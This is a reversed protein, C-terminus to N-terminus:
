ATCNDKYPITATGGSHFKFRGVFEWGGNPCTPPTKILIKKVKRRKGNRRVIVTRTKSKTTLQFSNLIVEDGEAGSSPDRCTGNINQSPPLCNPPIVTHLVPGNTLTGRWSPRLIIPNSNVDGIKPQLHLLLGGKRNFVKVDIQPDPLPQGNPATASPFKATAHGTGISTKSPCASPGEQELETDSAKCYPVATPDVKSKNPLDLDLERLADTQGNKPNSPNSSSLDVAIGTSRKPKQIETSGGSSPVAFNMKFNQTTSGVQASDALAVAAVALTLVGVLAGIYLRRM